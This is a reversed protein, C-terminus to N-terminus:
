DAMQDLMANADSVIDAYVTELDGFSTADEGELADHMDELAALASEIAAAATTDQPDTTLLLQELEVMKYGVAAANESFAESIFQVVASYYLGYDGELMWFLVQADRDLARFANMLALSNARDFVPPETVKTAFAYEWAFTWTLEYALNLFEGLNLENYADYYNASGGFYGCLCDIYTGRYLNFMYEYSYHLDEGGTVDSPITYLEEYLYANRIAEPATMINQVIANAREFASFLLNYVPYGEELLYYANDINIIAEELASFTDAWEGLDTPASSDYRARISKYKAFATELYGNFVAKNADSLGNYTSIVSDMRTKFEKLWGEYSARQAYIEMALVLNDYAVSAAESIVLLEESFYQNLLQTFLCTLYAYDGDSDFALPPYGYNYYANLTALFNLQETPSLTAYMSFLGKIATGYEATDAYDPDDLLKILTDIYADLLEKYAENGLLSASYYQYSGGNATRFYEVLTDFHYETQTGTMGLLGNLPLTDYLEKIIANDSQKIEASLELAKHYSYFFASTDFANLASIQSIQNFATACVNFLEQLEAPLRLSALRTISDMDDKAFYYSYLIDFADDAERWSSVFMYLQSASSDNYLGTTIFSYIDLIKAEYTNISQEAWNAPIEAFKDHLTLMYNFEAVRNRIVSPEIVKCDAFTLDKILSEKAFEESLKIVTPAVTYFPSTSASIEDIADKVASYSKCYLEFSGIDNIGFVDPYKEMENTWTVYGYAMAARAVSLADATSIYNKEAKSMDLYLEMMELATAGQAANIAPLEAGTWVLEAYSKATENFLSIDTYVLKVNYNKYTKGDHTVTLTQTLPTNTKNVASLDFGSVMDATLTIDKTLKGGNGKLTLYGGSVDLGGEHSNYAIKNPEHLDVSEIDYVNVTFDATYTDSGATYRVTLPLNTAASASSFGEISVSANSLPVTYTTGDNRTIRLRGKSTNFTDGVLYDTTHELVVMRSVVTVKLEVTKEEYEITITQEGLQDKNFGTVTIGESNLPLETTEDGEKVVLMGGSLDLEEGLVYQLQPMADEKLSIEIEDGCSVVTLATLALLLTLLLFKGIHKM